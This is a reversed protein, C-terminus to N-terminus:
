QMWTFAAALGKIAAPVQCAGGTIVFVAAALPLSSLQANASLYNKTWLVFGGCGCGCDLWEKEEGYM